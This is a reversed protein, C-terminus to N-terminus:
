VRGRKVFRMLFGIGIGALPLGICITALLSNGTIFTLADGALDSLGTFTNGVTTWINFTEM